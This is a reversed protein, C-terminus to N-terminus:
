LHQLSLLVHFPRLSTCDENIITISIVFHSLSYFFFYPLFIYFSILFRTLRLTVSAGTRVYEVDLAMPGVTLAAVKKKKQSVNDQKCRLNFFFSGKM